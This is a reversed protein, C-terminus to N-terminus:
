KRHGWSENASIGSYSEGAQGKWLGLLICPTHVIHTGPPWARM